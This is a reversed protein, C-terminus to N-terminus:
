SKLLHGKLFTFLAKAILAHGEHQPHIHDDAWESAPKLKVASDFVSQVDLVPIAFKNGLVKVVGCFENMVRYFAESKSDSILFPTLLFLQTRPLGARIERVLKELGSSYRQVSYEHNGSIFQNYADNIGIKIVVADPQHDIVDMQYRNLLDGVMHGNVGSNVFQINELQKDSDFMDKLISVYGDGLPTHANRNAATISDGFFVIKSIM